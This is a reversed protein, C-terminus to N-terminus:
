EEFYEKVYDEKTTLGQKVFRDCAQKATAPLDAYTKRKGRPARGGSEVSSPGNRRPNEFKDPYRVKVENTVADMFGSTGVLEPKTKALFHAVSNAYEHAEQDTKYWQNKGLWEQYYPHEPQERREDGGEDKKATGQVSFEEQLEDMEKQVKDFQEVDGTEVAARRREELDRAAKQYARQVSKTHHEKFEKFTAQMEAITDDQRRLRERLIPLENEGRRVFEKADVWRKQNGRYEDRPVWGMRRAKSEVDADGSEQDDEQDADQDTGEQDLEEDTEQDLEQDNELEEDSEFRAEQNM